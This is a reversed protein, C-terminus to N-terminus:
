CLAPAPELVSITTQATRTPRKSPKSYVVSGALPSAEAIALAHQCIPVSRCPRTPNRKHGYMEQATREPEGNGAETAILLVAVALATALCSRITRAGEIPTGIHNRTLPTASYRVARPPRPAPREVTRCATDAM